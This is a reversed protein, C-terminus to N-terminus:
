GIPSIEDKQLWKSCWKEVVSVHKATPDSHLPKYNLDNQLQGLIKEEYDVSNILFFRSGKVQIRYSIVTTPNKLKRLAM